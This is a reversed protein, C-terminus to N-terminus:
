FSGREIVEVLKQAAIKQAASTVIITPREKNGEVCIGNWNKILFFEEKIWTDAGIALREVLSITENVTHKQLLRSIAFGYAVIMVAHFQIYEKKYESHTTTGRIDDVATLQLWAEWLAKVNEDKLRNDGSGIFKSTSDCLAKFSIFYSSKSPVINHEYDTIDKFVSNERTFSVMMQAIDDRGNYVMNIAASPKSVNDNIDSFFQQRTKIDLKITLMLPISLSINFNRIFRNIGEARHQGDFLKIAADMPFRVMGVSTNGVFDIEFDTDCNGVLPPIIFPQGTEAANNLYKEFKVVRRENLERQSRELTHGYNDAALLRALTRAPVNMILTITDGQSGIAAPFEFFHEMTKNVLSNVNVETSKTANM